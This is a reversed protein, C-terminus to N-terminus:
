GVFWCRRLFCRRHHSSREGFHRPREIEALRPFRDNLERVTRAHTLERETRQTAYRDLAKKLPAVDYSM